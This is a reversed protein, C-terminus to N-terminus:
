GIRPRVNSYLRAHPQPLPRPHMSVSEPQAVCESPTTASAAARLEAAYLIKPEGDANVCAWRSHGKYEVLTWCGKKDGTHLGNHQANRRSKRLHTMTKLSDHDPRKGWAYGTANNNIYQKLASTFRFWEGCLRSDSFLGHIKHEDEFTGAAIVGVVRLRYPNGTQLCDLRSNLNYDDTFGIKIPGWVRNSHTRGAVRNVLEMSQIFYIM